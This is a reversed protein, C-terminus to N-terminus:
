SEKVELLSWWLNEAVEPSFDQYISWTYVSDYRQMVPVGLPVELTFEKLREKVCWFIFCFMEWDSLVIWDVIRYPHWERDGLYGDTCTINPASHILWKNM